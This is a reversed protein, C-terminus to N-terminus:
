DQTYCYELEQAAFTIDGSIRAPPWGSEAPYTITADIHFRLPRVSIVTLTGGAVQRRKLEREPECVDPMQRSCLGLSGDSYSIEATDPPILSASVDAFALHEAFITDVRRTTTLTLVQGRVVPYNLSVGFSASPSEAGFGGVTPSVASADRVLGKWLAAIQEYQWTDVDDFTAESTWAPRGEAPQYTVRTTLRKADWGECPLCAVGAASASLAVTLVHLRSM